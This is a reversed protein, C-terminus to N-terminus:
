MRKRHFTFEHTFQREGRHYVLTLRVDSEGEWEWYIPDNAYYVDLYRPEDVRSSSRDGVVGFGIGITPGSPAVQPRLPPLILKVFSRPAITQDQLPHSQGGPDVVSSLHGLLQITDSTPNFPLIVLRGEVSQMRYELPDLTFRGEANDGIHRALDSPRVLAFEYHACGVLLLLITPLVYSPIIRM